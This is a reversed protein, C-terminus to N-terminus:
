DADAIGTDRLIRFLELEKLYGKSRPCAVIVVDDMQYDLVRRIGAEVATNAIHRNWDPRRLSSAKVLITNEANRRVLRGPIGALELEEPDAERVDIAWDVTRYYEENARRFAEQIHPTKWAGIPDFVPSCMIRGIRGRLTVHRLAAGFLQLLEVTRLNEVLVDELLASDIGGTRFTCNSLRVNRVTSRTRPDQTVSLRCNVFECDEFVLDHFLGGSESEYLSRFTRNRFVTHGTM